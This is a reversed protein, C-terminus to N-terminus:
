PEVILWTDIAVCKYFQTTRDLFLSMAHETTTSHHKMVIGVWVSSGCRLIEDCCKAPFLEIM